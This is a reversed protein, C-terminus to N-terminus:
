WLLNAVTSSVTNKPVKQLSSVRTKHRFMKWFRRINTYKNQGSFLLVPELSVETVHYRNTMCLQRVVRQIANKINLWNINVISHWKLSKIKAQLTYYFLIKLETLRSSIGNRTIGFNINFKYRPKAIKPDIEVITIGWNESIKLSYQFLSNAPFPNFYGRRWSNNNGTTKMYLIVYSQECPPFTEKEFYKDLMKKTILSDLIALSVLFLFGALTFFFLLM